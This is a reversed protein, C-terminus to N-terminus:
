GAHYREPLYKKYVYDLIASLPLKSLRRLIEKRDERIELLDKEADARGVESLRYVYRIRDGLVEADELIDGEFIMRELTEALERSYPGYYHKSFDFLKPQQLEMQGLFVMKQFRVRGRIKGVSELISLIFRKREDYETEKM